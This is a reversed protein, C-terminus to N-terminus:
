NQPPCILYVVGVILLLQYCCNIKVLLFGVLLVHHTFSSTGCAITSVMTSCLLENLSFVFNEWSFYMRLFSLFYTQVLACLRCISITHRMGVGEVCLLCLGTNRMMLGEVRSRHSIYRSTAGELIHHTYWIFTGNDVNRNNMCHFKANTASQVYM